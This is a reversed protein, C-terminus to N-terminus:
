VNISIDRLLYNEYTNFKLIVTKALAYAINSKKRIWIAYDIILDIYRERTAEINIM